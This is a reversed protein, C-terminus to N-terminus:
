VGVPTFVTKHTMVFAYGIVVAILGMAIGVWAQLRQQDVATLTQVPTVGLAPRHVWLVLVGTGITAPDLVLFVVTVWRDPEAVWWLSSSAVVAALGLWVSGLALFPAAGRVSDGGQPLRWMYWLVGAVILASVIVQITVQVEDSM